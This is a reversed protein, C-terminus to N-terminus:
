SNIKQKIISAVRNTEDLKQYNWNELRNDLKKIINLHVNIKSFSKIKHEM